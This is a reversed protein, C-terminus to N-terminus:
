RPTPAPGIPESPRETEGPPEHGRKSQGKWGPSGKRQPPDMPQWRAFAAREDRSLLRAIALFLKQSETRARVEAQLAKAQAETFREPVFPEAILAAQVAERAQRVEARLPHLTQRHEATERWILQRREPPLSQAFGLLNGSGGLMAIPGHSPGGHRFRWAAAAMAGAVLLNLALSIVLVIRMWRPIQNGMPLEAATNSM